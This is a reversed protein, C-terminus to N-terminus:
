APKDREILPLIGRTKLLDYIFLRGKQTWYTNLKSRDGDIIHTKSQTYGKNAYKQYLLWCDGQKFQVGLEHLLSNMAIASMGYDKAIKSISLLSKNQLVLDYYTAKPRLENIIQEKQANQLLLAENKEALDAALRLAEPLTRPIAIQKLRRECEIFYKRAQRGKENNEVMCLEKAMDISLEYDIRPRGGDPTKGSKPSFDMGKIFGYKEIKDKIWTSFDRGVGLFEHLERGDVTMGQETQNVKILEM